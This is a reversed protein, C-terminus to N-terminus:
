SGSRTIVIDPASRMTDGPYVAEVNNGDPDILFAAFYGTFYDREGPPGNDSGGAALGVAHWRHVMERSSAQFALHVHTGEGADTGAEIWLEDASLYEETVTCDVGLVALTARYFSFTRASDRARLHVHDILRGLRYQM